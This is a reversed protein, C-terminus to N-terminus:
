MLALSWLCCLSCVSIGLRDRAGSAALVAIRSVVASAIGEVALSDVGVARYTFNVDVRPPPGALGGGSGTPAGAAGAGVSFRQDAKVELLVITDPADVPSFVVSPLAPNDTYSGDARYQALGESALWVALGELLATSGIV